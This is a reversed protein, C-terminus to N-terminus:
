RSHHHGRRGMRSENVDPALIAIGAEKCHGIYRIIKDTDGSESSMLACMYEVPYHTKLWATQYMLM